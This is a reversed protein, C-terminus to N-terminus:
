ITSLERARLTWVEVIRGGALIDYRTLSVEFYEVIGPPPGPPCDTDLSIDGAFVRVGTVEAVDPIQSFISARSTLVRARAFTRHASVNFNFNFVHLENSAAGGGGTFPFNVKALGASYLNPLDSWSEGGM